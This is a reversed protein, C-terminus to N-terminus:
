RICMGQSMFGLGTKALALLFKFETIAKSPAYIAYIESMIRTNRKTKEANQQLKGKRTEREQPQGLSASVMQGDDRM